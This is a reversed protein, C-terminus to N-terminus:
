SLYTYKQSLLQYKTTLENYSVAMEADIAVKISILKRINRLVFTGLEWYEEIRISRVGKM